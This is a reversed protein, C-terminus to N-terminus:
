QRRLLALGLLAGGVLSLTAPEPVSSSGGLAGQVTTSGIQAGSTPNVIITFPTTTFFTSGFSGSSAHNTGTGIQAPAWAIVITSQDLYVSGGASTGVFTGTAGDTVDTIVMDFTFAGFTAGVGGSLTTCSACALTFNGFNIGSPIGVSANPDAVFGLTAAVGSSQNLSLNGSSNFGTGASGTATTNFTITAASASTALIFLAAVMLPAAQVCRGIKMRM